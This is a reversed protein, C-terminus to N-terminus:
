VYRAMEFKVGEKISQALPARRHDIRAAQLFFIADAKRHVPIGTVEKALNNPVGAGGLMIATPVPSTAFEYINYPVGAFTQNGTPLDAFTFKTDGFWGHDTRFQNAQKSIDIPTYDLNAGVIVTKGGLLAKLNRLIAAFVARKKLVNAPVEETEKFLLNCLVIGGKGALPYEMMGGVNLM